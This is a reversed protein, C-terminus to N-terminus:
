SEYAWKAQATYSANNTMIEILLSNKFELLCNVGQTNSLSSLSPSYYGNGAGVVNPTDFVTGDLTIRVTTTGSTQATAWLQLLRGAGTVSLATVYTTTTTSFTGKKAVRNNQSSNLRTIAM